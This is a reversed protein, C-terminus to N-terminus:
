LIRFKVAAGTMMLLPDVFRHKSKLAFRPRTRCDTAGPQLVQLYRTSKIKQFGRSHKPDGVLSPPIKLSDFWL